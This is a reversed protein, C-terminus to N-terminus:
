PEESASLTPSTTSAMPLGKPTPWVTVPPMTEASPRVPRPMLVKSFKMWVSAAMLGPLEPPASTSTPPLRTPILVAIKVREPPEIPIPKAIGTDVALITSSCITFFPLTVRPHIPTSTCSIVGGTASDNRSCLVRPASMAPTSRPPGASLAPMLGPSTSNSTSPRGTASGVEISFRTAASAGPSEARIFSLRAPLSRSALTVTPPPGLRLRAALAPVSELFLLGHLAPDKCRHDRKAEGAAGAGGLRGRRRAGGSRTGRGRGRSCRRGRGWRRGRGSRLRCRRWDPGGLHEVVAVVAYAVIQECASQALRPQALRYRRGHAIRRLRLRDLEALAGDVGIVAGEGVHRGRAPIAHEVPRVDIQGAAVREPFALNRPVLEEGVEVAGRQHHLHGVPEIGLVGA